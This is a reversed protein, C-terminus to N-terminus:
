ESGLCAGNDAAYKSTLVIAVSHEERARSACTCNAFHEAQELARRPPPRSNSCAFGRENNNPGILVVRIQQRPPLASTKHNRDIFRPVTTHVHIVKLAHQPLM